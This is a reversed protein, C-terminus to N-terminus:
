PSDPLFTFSNIVMNYLTELRAFEDGTEDWPIFWLEYLRDAHVILIRRSAAQGGLGDLVVADEGGLTLSAFEIVEPVPEEAIIEDAIQGATRGVADEVELLLNATHCAMAPGEPVLCVEYPLPDV